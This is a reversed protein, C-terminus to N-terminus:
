AKGESNEYLMAMAESPNEPLEGSTDSVADIVEKTKITVRPSLKKKGRCLKIVIFFAFLVFFFLPIALLSTPLKQTSMSSKLVTNTTVFTPYLRSQNDRAKISMTKYFLAPGLITKMSSISTEGVVYLGFVNGSEDRVFLEQVGNWPRALPELLEVHGSIQFLKGRFVEPTSILSAINPFQLSEISGEWGRVHEVLAAFGEGRSDEGDVVSQLRIQSKEGIPSIDGAM